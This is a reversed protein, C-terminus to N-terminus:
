LINRSADVGYITHASLEERLEWLSATREGCEHM